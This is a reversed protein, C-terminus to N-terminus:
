KPQNAENAQDLTFGSMEALKALEIEGSLVEGNIMWTPFGEIRADSCAKFIQVGKKYGEPFCEVYNLLKAAERGFMEKQEQCHSCWFAGYMKAGISNLHKALAVAYPSSSTTIETSYYPLEIDGSRSPLPQATSYSATLSAVVIIALCIQLGVVQQIEQLKVDKLSLFFLSFSLFASALCYLCSSGSLKTSLIYLFYASASAMTTTAFVLAYDSNLVDGCAGGGVPCFADSGTLKLYTLYATDLMGIGGLVTYLNYSSTDIPVESTSSSSSSSSSLSTASDVGDEPKSSSCKISFRRDYVEFRRPYLTSSSPPLEPFGFHFQPSSVSVFRAMM